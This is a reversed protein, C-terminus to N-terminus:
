HNQGSVMPSMLDLPLMTECTLMLEYMLSWRLKEILVNAENRRDIMERRERYLAIYSEDERLHESVAATLVVESYEPAYSLLRQDFRRNMEVQLEEARANCALSERGLREIEEAKEDFQM